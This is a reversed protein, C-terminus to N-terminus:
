QAQPLVNTVRLVDAFFLGMEGGRLAHAEAPSVYEWGIEQSYALIPNQIATKESVYHVESPVGCREAAPGSVHM